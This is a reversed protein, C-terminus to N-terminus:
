LQRLCYFLQKQTLINLSFPPTLWAILALPFSATYEENCNDYARYIRRQSRNCSIRLTQNECLRMCSVWMVGVFWSDRVSSLVQSLRSNTSDVTEKGNRMNVNQSNKEILAREYWFKEARDCTKKSRYTENLSCSNAFHCNMIKDRSASRKQSIGRFLRELFKCEDLATSTPGAWQLDLTMRLVAHLHRRISFFDVYIQISRWHLLVSHTQRTSCRPTASHSRRRWTFYDGGWPASRFILSVAQMRRQDLYM